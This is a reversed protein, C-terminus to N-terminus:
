EGRAARAAQIPNCNRSVETCESALGGLGCSDVFPDFAPATPAAVGRMARGALEAAPDGGTSRPSPRAAERAAKLAAAERAARAYAHAQDHDRGLALAHLYAGDFAAQDALAALAPNAAGAAKAKMLAESNAPIPVVSIEHLENNDLVTVAVGNRTESRVSGPVFGVSVANLIGERVLQWVREAEPNAAETAFTITARLAGDSVRVNSAKGVPLARSNHGYLVVPNQLYRRLDWSLSVVENYSDVAETSAVVDVSRSAENLSRVRFLDLSRTAGSVSQLSLPAHQMIRRLAGSMAGSTITTNDAGSM